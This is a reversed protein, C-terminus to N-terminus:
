NEKLPGDKLARVFLYDGKTSRNLMFLVYLVHCILKRVPGFHGMTGKNDLTDLLNRYLPSYLPWGWAIVRDIILGAAQMKNELEGPAYNRIHGVQREFARMRGQLTAVIVHGGPATMHALNKLANQDDELHELVDASVVIDFTETPTEHAIDCVQFSAEPVVTRALNLAKESVDLGFGKAAPHVAM